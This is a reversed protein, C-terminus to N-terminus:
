HLKRLGYAILIAGTLLPTLVVTTFTVYLLMRDNKTNGPRDYVGPGFWASKGTLWGRLLIVGGTMLVIGITILVGGLM